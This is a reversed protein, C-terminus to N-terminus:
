KPESSTVTALHGGLSECYVKADTWSMPDDYAKYYHSGYKVADAPISVAGVQLVCVAVTMGLTLVTLFISLVQKAKKM